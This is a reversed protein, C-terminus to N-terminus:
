RRPADGVGRRMMRRRMVFLSRAFLADLHLSQEPETFAVTQILEWTAAQDSSAHM